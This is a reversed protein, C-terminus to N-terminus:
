NLVDVLQCLLKTDEKKLLNLEDELPQSQSFRLKKETLEIRLVLEERKKNINKAELSISNPKKKVLNNIAEISYAQYDQRPSGIFKEAEAHSYEQHHMNRNYSKSYNKRKRQQNHNNKNSQNRNHPKNPKSSRNPRNQGSQSPTM